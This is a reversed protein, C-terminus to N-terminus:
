MNMLKKITYGFIMDIKEMFKIMSLILTCDETNRDMFYQAIWLPCFVVDEM